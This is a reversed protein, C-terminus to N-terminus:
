ITALKFLSIIFHLQQHTFSFVFLQKFTVIYVQRQMLINQKKENKM